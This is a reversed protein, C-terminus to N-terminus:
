TPPNLRRLGIDYLIQTISTEPRMIMYEAVASYNAEYSDLM